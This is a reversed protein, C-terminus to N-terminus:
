ANAKEEFEKILEEGKGNISNSPNTDVVRGLTNNVILMSISRVDKEFQPPNSCGAITLGLLTVMDSVVSGVYRFKGLHEILALEVKILAEVSGKFDELESICEVPMEDTTASKIAEDLISLTHQNMENVALDFEEKNM